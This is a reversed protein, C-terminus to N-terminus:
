IQWLVGFFYTHFSKSTKISILSVGNRESKLKMKVSQWALKYIIFQLNLCINNDFNNNFLIIAEQFIFEGNRV